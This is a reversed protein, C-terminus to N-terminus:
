LAAEDTRSNDIMHVKHKSAAFKDVYRAIDRCYAAESMASPITPTSRMGGVKFTTIAREWADPDDPPLLLTETNAIERHSAIDSAITPVGLANGELVSLGFGEAHSPCLMAAAGLTLRGLAPSSLGSAHHVHRALEADKEIEGLIAEANRGRSGVIVLHPAREGMRGVLRRWVEILLGHNKRPEVTSCTLFYHREALRPDSSRQVGLASPLPLGRVHIPVNARGMHAMSSAISNRAHATTAIVLDAHNVATRVMQEHHKAASPSVFHPYELPITDHLMFAATIDPRRRLWRHFAPVALGIQGINLYVAGRPLALVTRGPSIGTQRLHMWMRQMKDVARLPKHAASGVSVAKGCLAAVLGHWRPDTAEDIREAWIDHLHDLGRRVMQAKFCRLGWPTPLIGVNSTTDNPFFHNALAVDVRDIGRPSLSLPGLFLRTLDYAVVRSM